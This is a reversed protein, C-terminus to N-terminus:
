LGRVLRVTSVPKRVHLRQEEGLLVHDVTVVNVSVAGYM